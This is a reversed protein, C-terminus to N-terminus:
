KRKDPSKPDFAVLNFQERMRSRVRNGYCQEIESASLNTTVHTLQNTIIFFEYRSHLIEAMVNCENGYFKLSNESGLDDFCYVISENSNIIRHSYKQIIDYGEKIFEFSIDRCSKIVFRNKVPQYLKLLTMLSTKGCGIPGALLIGKQLNIDHKFAMESDKLFYILLKHIVPLDEVHLTFHSGFKNKGQLGLWAIAHNYDIPKQVHEAM